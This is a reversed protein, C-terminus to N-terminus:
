SVAGSGALSRPLLPEEDRRSDDEAVAQVARFRHAAIRRRRFPAGHRDVKRLAMGRKEASAWLARVARLMNRHSVALAELRVHEGHGPQLMIQSPLRM